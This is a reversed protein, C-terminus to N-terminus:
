IKIVEMEFQKKISEIFDKEKDRSFTCGAAFEHGGVEGGVENVVRSLVERLNRGERGVSRASVKIKTSDEHDYALSFISTGRRYLPSNTIISTVTGIMTDKIRDKANIIVFSEEEIKEIQSISRIGDILSQRYKIHIADARKKARPIEMCMQLAVEPQGYRSCANIKACIERVDELKNFLKILFIEGVLDKSSIEPNRLSITTVLREMEEENIELLTKYKGNEPLIGAERLLEIIGAPNGTVGPIFPNSSFELALNIPRTSPYILIGRKKKIEGDNLIEHNLKDIEKDLTDGIMGIIALKALDKNKKNMERCFLYVLGSSSIKQKSHLQPNIMMINAPIDQVIEHHDLVFVFNNLIKLEDLSGSGLDLFMLIEDPSIKQIFEKDLRKIIKLSFDIDERKLAQVMIGASSIGDADFHSIVIVKKNKSKEFLLDVGKKIQDELSNELVM